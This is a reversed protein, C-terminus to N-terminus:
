GTSKESSMGLAKMDFSFYRSWYRLRHGLQVAQVKQADLYAELLINQCYRHLLKLKFARM